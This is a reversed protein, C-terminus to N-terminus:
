FRVSLDAAFSRPPAVYFQSDGLESETVYHRSDTLNRGYVSVRAWGFEWNVGADCSFFSPTYFTNRRNLPRHNQHRVNIFAGPGRKPSQYSLGLNWMDRPVLELRNGDVVGLEGDPTLFSFHVFRANHHAYGGAFSLGPVDKPAYKLSVEVGKFSEEGANTLEPEDRPGLGSVVVNKLAMDFWAADLALSGDLWSTKVGAEVANSREPKLIEVAEAETLNPAAPKFNSRASAYLNFATLAGAPKELLRYLLALGGSWATDNRSDSSAAIEDTSLEHMFASLSESTVDFRAGGTVTLAAFPTWEDSGYFGLFTRHDSFSRVDGVPIDELRPIIPVPSVLLDFDFGKGAANVQGWTLAAGAVLRHRGAATFDKLVHLDDYVTWAEPKLATGTASAVSGEQGVIFSRVLNQWDYTVGTLNELKWGSGIPTELKTSLGYVRHDTRAGLVEYNEDVQFGPLPQGADVPMPSGFGNGDYYGLLQAQLTTQGWTKDATVSFRGADHGSRPQWGDSRGLSGEFRLRFDSALPYGYGASGYVTSFSGGGATSTGTTQGRRTFVQIMGAFASVGYLTGQPGRVIEIRDIDDVPIQSLEPNFPGGAPIGDVTVLLADFEKLGWLGINPLRPGSDSGNGTDIGVVGQLADALTRAGRLRIEEGTVVSTSAPIDIAEEPIKTASVVVDEHVPAPTPAPTPEPPPTQGRLAAAGLTLAVFGGALLRGATHRHM